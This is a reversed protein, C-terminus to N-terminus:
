CQVDLLVSSLEVSSVGINGDLLLVITFMSLEERQLLRLGGSRGIGIHEEAAAVLSAFDDQATQVQKTLIM